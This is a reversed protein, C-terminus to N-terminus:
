GIALYHVGFLREHGTDFYDARIQPLRQRREAIDESDSVANGMLSALHTAAAAVTPNAFFDRVPLEIQIEATLRVVVQTSLLSSGALLFLDDHIGVEPVNLM